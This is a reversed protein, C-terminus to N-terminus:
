GKSGGIQRASQNLHRIKANRKRSRERAIADGEASFALGPKRVINNYHKSHKQRPEKAFDKCGRETYHIYYSTGPYQTQFFSLTQRAKDIDDTKDITIDCKNKSPTRQKVIYKHM